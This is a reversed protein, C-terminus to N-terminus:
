REDRAGQHGLAKLEDFPRPLPNVVGDVDADGASEDPLRSGGAALEPYSSAAGGTSLRLPLLTVGETSRSDSTCADPDSVGGDGDM